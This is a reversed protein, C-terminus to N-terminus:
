KGKRWPEDPDDNPTSQPFQFDAGRKSSGWSPLISPQIGGACADWLSTSLSAHCGAKLSGEGRPLNTFASVYAEQVADEADVNNRSIANWDTNSLVSPQTSILAPEPENDSFNPANGVAV